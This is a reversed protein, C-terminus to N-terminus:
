GLDVDGSLRHRNRALRAGGVRLEQSDLELTFGGQRLKISSGDAEIRSGSVRLELAQNAQVDVRESARVDVRRTANLSVVESRLEAVHNGALQLNDAAVAVQPADMAVAVNAKISVEGLSTLASGRASKLEAYDGSIGVYPATVKVFGDSKLAAGMVGFVKAHCGSELAASVGGAVAAKNPTSLKVGLAGFASVAKPTTITVGGAGHIKVEPDSGGEDGEDQDLAEAAHVAIEFATRLGQIVRDAAQLVRAAQPAISPPSAGSVLGAVMQRANSAMKIGTWVAGWAAKLTETGRRPAGTDVEPVLPVGMAPMVTFSPDAFGAEGATLEVNGTGSGVRVHANSALGLDSAALVRGQRGAHVTTSGDTDLITDGHIEAGFSKVTRLAIGAPGLPKSEAGAAGPAGLTLLSAPAPVHLLLRQAGGIATAPRALAQELQALRDRQEAIQFEHQEIEEAQFALDDGQALMAEGLEALFEDQDDDRTGM